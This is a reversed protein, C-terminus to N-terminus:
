FCVPTHLASPCLVNPALCLEPGDSLGGEKKLVGFVAGPLWRCGGEGVGAPSLWPSHARPEEGSSLPSKMLSSM